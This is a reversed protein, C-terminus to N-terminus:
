NETLVHEDYEKELALKHAAEEAALFEFLKRLEPEGANSAMTTYLNHSKEERKMAVLLIDQYDMDPTVTVEDAYDAIKLDPVQVIAANEVRARDISMLKRKHMEEQHALGLLMEKVNSRKAIDSATAYMDVAEQESDIAFQVIEDFNERKM